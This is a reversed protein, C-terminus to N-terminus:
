CRRFIGSGKYRVFIQDVVSEAFGSFDGELELTGRFRVGGREATLVARTWHARACSRLQGPCEQDTVLLLFNCDSLPQSVEFEAILGPRQVLRSQLVGHVYRLLM